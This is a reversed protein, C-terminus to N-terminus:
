LLDDVADVGQMPQLVDARTDDVRGTRDLPGDVLEVRRRQELLGSQGRGLRDDALPDVVRHRCKAM